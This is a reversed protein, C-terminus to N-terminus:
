FPIDNIDIFLRGSDEDDKDGYKEEPARLLNDDDEDDEIPDPFLARSMRTGIHDTYAHRMRGTQSETERQHRIVIAILALVNDFPEESDFVDEDYIVHDPDNVPMIRTYGMLWDICTDNLHEKMVDILNATKETLLLQELANWKEDENECSSQIQRLKDLLAFADKDTGDLSLLQRDDDSNGCAFEPIDNIYEIGMIWAADLVYCVKQLGDIACDLLENLQMHGWGPKPKKPLRDGEKEYSYLSHFDWHHEYIYKSTVLYPTKPM